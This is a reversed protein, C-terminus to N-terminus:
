EGSVTRRDAGEEKGTSNDKIGERHIKGRCSMILQQQVSFYVTRCYGIGYKTPMTTEKPGVGLRSYFYM